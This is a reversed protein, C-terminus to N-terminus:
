CGCVFVDDAVRDDLSFVIRCHHEYSVYYATGLVELM